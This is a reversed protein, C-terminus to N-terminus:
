RPRPPGVVADEPSPGRRCLVVGGEISTSGVFWKSDLLFVGGPGVAIHDLNGRKGADLDHLVSWGDPMKKLAKATMQEGQFGTRMREIHEPPSDRAALWFTMSAGVM